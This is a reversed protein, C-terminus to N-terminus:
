VDVCGRLTSFSCGLMQEFTVSYSHPRLRMELEDKAGGEGVLRFGTGAPCHLYHLAISTSLDCTSTSTTAAAAFPLLRRQQNPGIWNQQESRRQIAGDMQSSESEEEPNTSLRFRFGTENRLPRRGSLINWTAISPALNCCLIWRFSIFFSTTKLCSRMVHEKVSGILWPQSIDHETHLGALCINPPFSHPSCLIDSLVSIRFTRCM